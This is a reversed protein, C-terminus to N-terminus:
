KNELLENRPKGFFYGQSYHIGLAQIENQIAENAVFEAISKIALEDCFAKINKVVRYSTADQVIHKVLSGDIKIYDIYDSLKLIHEFSSYGSGFDDIAVKCGMLKIAKVFAYISDYNGLSESELIEVV